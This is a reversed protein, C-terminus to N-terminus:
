RIHRVFRSYIEFVLTDLFFNDGDIAIKFWRWSSSTRKIYDCNESRYIECWKVGDLSGSIKITFDKATILDVKLRELRKIQRSGLSLERTVISGKLPKLADESLYNGIKNDYVFRGEGLIYGKFDRSTWVGSKLSFLYAYDFKYNVILLEAFNPIYYIRSNEIFNAISLGLVDSVLSSVHGSLRSLGGSSFYYLAGAASASRSSSKIIDNNVKVINKYLVNDIGQEMAYIGTNTFLYLPYQGFRSETLQDVPMNVDEIVCNDNEGIYYVHQPYNLNPKGYESVMLMNPISFSRKNMIPLYPSTLTGIPYPTHTIITEKSKDWGVAYNNALAPQLDFSCILITSQVGKVVRTFFIDMKTARVDPYSVINPLILYPMNDYYVTNGEEKIVKLYIRGPVITTVVSREGGNNITVSVGMTKINDSTTFAIRNYKVGNTTVTSSELFPMAVDCLKAKINYRHLRGNLTTVSEPIYTHPSVTPTFIPKTEIDNYNAASLTTSDMTRMDIETIAYFPSSAIDLNQKDLIHKASSRRLTPSLVQVYRTDVPFKTHIDEFDNIPNNRTSYVIISKINPNKRLEDINNFFLTAKFGYIDKYYKVTSGNVTAKYFSYDNSSYGKESDLMYLKSNRIISGDNMRLAFMIYIAGHIYGGRKMDAYIAEYHKDVNSVYSNGNNDNVLTCTAIKIAHDNVNEKNPVYYEYHIGVNGVEPTSDNYTPIYKDNIFQFSEMFDEGATSFKVFLTDEFHFLKLSSNEFGDDFSKVLIGERAFGDIVKIHYLKNEKLAIYDSNPLIPHSYIIEYGDMNIDEGSTYDCVSKIRDDRWAVNHATECWGDEVSNITDKSNLGKLTFAKVDRKKSM